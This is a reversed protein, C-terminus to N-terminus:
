NSYTRCRDNVLSISANDEIEGFFYEAIEFNGVHASILVVEKKKM